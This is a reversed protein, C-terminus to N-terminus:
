DFAGADPGSEVTVKHWREPAGGDYDIRVVGDAPVTFPPVSCELWTTCIQYSGPALELQYFGVDDTVVSISASTNTDTVDLEIKTLAFPGTVDGSDDFIVAQGYVGDAITVRDEVDRSVVVASGCSGVGAGVVFVVFLLGAGVFRKTTMANM